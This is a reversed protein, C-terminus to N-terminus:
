PGQITEGNTQGDCPLHPPLKAVTQGCIPCTKDYGGNDGGGGRYVHGEDEGGLSM